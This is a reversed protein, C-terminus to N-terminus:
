FFFPSAYNALGISMRDYWDVSMLAIQPIPFSTNLYVAIVSVMSLWPIGPGLIVNVSSKITSNQMGYNTSISGNYVM